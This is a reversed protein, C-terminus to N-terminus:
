IQVEKLVRKGAFLTKMGLGCTAAEVRLDCLRFGGSRLVKSYLCKWGWPWGGLQRLFLVTAPAWKDRWEYGTLVM